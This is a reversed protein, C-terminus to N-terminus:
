PNKKHKQVALHTAVYGAFELNIKKKETTTGVVFNTKICSSREIKFQFLRSTLLFVPITYYVVQFHRITLWGGFPYVKGLEM